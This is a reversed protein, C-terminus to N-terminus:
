WRSGLYEERLGGVGQMFRPAQKVAGTLRKLGLAMGRAAVAIGNLV